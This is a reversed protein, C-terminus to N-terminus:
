GASAVRRGVSQSGAMREAEDIDVSVLQSVGAEGMTVGLLQGAATMTLKNHTVCIIQVQASFERILEAFRATNADDLPADVEDLMCFPSPNLQFLSFVLAIAALSKEGGSLQQISGTRKGPPQATMLIGTSLLDEGTMQLQAQGGGFLRPFMIKLGQNVQDFTDRFRSRSERDIRQIAGQLMHLAKDLEEYQTDLASKRESERQYEEEAALNVQGLRQIRAALQEQKQQWLSEQAEEPLSAHVQDAELGLEPFQGALGEFEAKLAGQRVRCQELEDRRGALDEEIATRALGAERQKEEVETLAERASTVEAEAQARAQLSGALKKELDEVPALNSAASKELEEHQTRNRELEREVRELGKQVQDARTRLSEMELAKSQVRQTKEDRSSRLAGLHEHMADRSGRLDERVATTEEVQQAAAQCQAQLESLEQAIEQRRTSNETLKHELRTRQVVQERVQEGRAAAQACQVAAEMLDQQCRERQAEADHVAQEAAACGAAAEEALAQADKLKTELNEAARQMQLVGEQAGAVRVWGAGLWLGDRTIVSEGTELHPRRALAASRDKATYVRGLLADIDAPGSVKAALLAADAPARFQGAVMFEVGRSAPQLPLSVLLADMDEVCLAGLRQGLVQEVALEWGEEIELLGALPRLQHASLGERWEDPLAGGSRERQVELATRRGGLDEVASRSQHLTERARRAADRQADVATDCERVRAEMADRHEEMHAAQLEEQSAQTAASLGQQEEELEAQQAALRADEGALAETRTQLHYVRGQAEAVATSSSDWQAQSASQAQEQRHLEAAAEKEAGREAQLEEELVALRQKGQALLDCDQVRETEMERQRQAAATLDARLEADRARRSRLEEETRAAASGLEYYRAQVQHFAESCTNHELRLNEGQTDAERLRAMVKEVRGDAAAAVTDLEQMQGTLTRQQLAILEGKIRQEQERLRSYREAEKAQRKLTRLHNELEGRLDDVRELNERTRQMRSETERRRERYLSIGAAAELYTRLEEPKAEVLRSVMGQEIIAYSRPGLGTGHFVDTIDRRRCRAGNLFYKSDGERDVERRISLEDYAAYAGGLKGERNDFVLEVSAQGLPHRKDTGNFIVAAMSESRMTRASSEGMVWRVADIINSKGCGNPGVISCFNGPFDVTIPAAFSKFGSLRISKLRM